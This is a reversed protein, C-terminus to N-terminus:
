ANRNDRKPGPEDVEARNIRIVTGGSRQPDPRIEITEGPRVHVTKRVRIPDDQRDVNSM